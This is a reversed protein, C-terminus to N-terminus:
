RRLYANFIICWMDVKTFVKVYSLQDLLGLIMFLLYKNNITLQCLERYDVVNM